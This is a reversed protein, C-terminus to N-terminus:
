TRKLLKRILDDYQCAVREKTFAEVFERGRAGEAPLSARELFAKKIAEAFAVPSDPAVVRGCQAQQVLWAMDSDPDATALVPKGCAMITYIKSPLGDLAGARTM